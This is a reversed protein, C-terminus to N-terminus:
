NEDEKMRDEKEEGNKKEVGEEKDAEDAPFAVPRALQNLFRYRLRKINENEVVAFYALRPYHGVHSALTDRQISTAWELKTTQANGTGQYKSQLHQLQVQISFRDYGAM